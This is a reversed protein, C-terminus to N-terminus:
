FYFLLNQKHRIMRLRASQTYMRVNWKDPTYHEERVGWNQTRAIPEKNNSTPLM